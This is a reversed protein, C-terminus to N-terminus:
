DYRIRPDIAAYALDVILNVLAFMLAFTLVVGQILPIDRQNIAAVSLQGLGPWGFIGETLVAGGLLAGFRLGIMSVVPLLANRLVHALTVRTPGLGKAHATRVFDLSLTDLMASRVLRSIIAAAGVGLTIAPLALHALSDLLVSPNGRLLDVIAVLLPEGRGIAPLWDLTVAFLFMLLIGMWFVPMSIGLQAFLMAFIDSARGHRVAALIGLPVGILIAILLAVIALELTAGLRGSVAELVSQSQFLSYGLDGQALKGIYAAFQVTLPQDLLLERRLAELQEPTGEQGLLVLAQDGGIVNLMLFVLVIIGFLMPIMLLLRRAAYGIM